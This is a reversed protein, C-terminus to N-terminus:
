KMLPAEIGAKAAAEKVLEYLEHGLEEDPETEKGRAIAANVSDHAKAMLEQTQTHRRDHRAGGPLGRNLFDGFPVGDAMHTVTHESSMHYTNDYRAALIEDVGVDKPDVGFGHTLENFERVTAM